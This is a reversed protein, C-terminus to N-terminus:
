GPSKSLAGDNVAYVFDYDAITNKLFRGFFHMELRPDNLPIKNLLPKWAVLRPAAQALMAESPWSGQQAAPTVAELRVDAFSLEGRMNVGFVAIGYEDRTSKMM